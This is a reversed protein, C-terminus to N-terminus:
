WWLNGFYRGFLELSRALDGTPYFKGDRTGPEDRAHAEFGAVIEALVANWEEGTLDFPLLFTRGAFEKVSSAIVAALHRDLSLLDESSWGRRGRQVFSRARGGRDKAWREVGRWAYRSHRRFSSWMQPTVHPPASRGASALTDQEYGLGQEQWCQLALDRDLGDVSSTPRNEDDPTHDTM